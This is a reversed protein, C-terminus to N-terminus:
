AARVRPDLWGYLFDVILNVVVFATASLLVVTQVIAYDRGNIAGVVLSGVGPWAFVTEVVVAGSIIGALQLGLVTAVPALANRLAHHIIIRRVGAGKARATRVFEEALTELLAARMLRLLLALPLVSLTVVPLLYHRLSASGFTPLWQLTVGFLLISLIALVFPPVAQLLLSLDRVTRDFRSSRWVAAAVGLPLAVCAATAFALLGLRLTAPLRELVLDLAPRNAVVSVGLDGRAVRQLYRIFQEPLPQDLGMSARMAQYDALTASSPLMVAVPDGTLRGLAFTIALVGLLTL